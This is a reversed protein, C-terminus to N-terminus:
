KRIGDRFIEETELIRRVPVRVPDAEGDPFRVATTLM